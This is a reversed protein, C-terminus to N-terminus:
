TGISIEFEFMHLVFVCTTIMNLEMMSRRRTRRRMDEISINLIQLRKFIFLSHSSTQIQETLGVLVLIYISYPHTM